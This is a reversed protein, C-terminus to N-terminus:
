LLDDYNSECTEVQTLFGTDDAEALDYAASDFISWIEDVEAQQMEHEDLLLTDIEAGLDFALDEYHYAEDSESDHYYSEEFFLASCWIAQIMAKDLHQVLKTQPQAMAGGMGALIVGAALAYKGLKM